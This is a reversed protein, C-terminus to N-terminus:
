LSKQYTMHGINFRSVFHPYKGEDNEGIEEAGGKKKKKEEMEGM